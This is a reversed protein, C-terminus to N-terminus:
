SAADELKTTHINEALREAVSDLRRRADQTLRPLPRRCHGLSVLNKGALYKAAGFVGERVMHEITDNIRTQVVKAGQFDNREFRMRLSQFLEIQIGVTTGIAGRSGISLTPLYLEDFGNILKLNPYRNIIREAGFLNQSTHKIGIVRESELLSEFGGDAVDTGTFQPINYLLFPIEVADIVDSFHRVVEQTSYRYYLPPIMSIAAAGADQAASALEIAEKTSMAGVHAFVPVRGAAIEVASKTVNTREAVSLLLGEGTSGGIYLGEVGRAIDNDALQAFADFNISEDEHMPTPCAVILRDKILDNVM